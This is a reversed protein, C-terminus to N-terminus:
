NGGARDYRGCSSVLESEARVCQLVRLLRTPRRYVEAKAVCMILHATKITRQLLAFFM